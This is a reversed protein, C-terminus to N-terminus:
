LCGLFAVLALREAASEIDGGPMFPLVAGFDNRLGGASYVKRTSLGRLAPVKKGDVVKWAGLVPGDHCDTCRQQRFVSLGRM